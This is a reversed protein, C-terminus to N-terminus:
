ICGAAAEHRATHDKWKQIGSEDPEFLIPKNIIKINNYLIYLREIEKSPIGAKLLKVREEPTDLM